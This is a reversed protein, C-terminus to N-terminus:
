EVITLNSGLAVTREQVNLGLGEAIDLLLLGVSGQVVQLDEGAAAEEWETRIAKLTEIIKKRTLPHKM